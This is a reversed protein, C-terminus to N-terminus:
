NHYILHNEHRSLRSFHHFFFPHPKPISIKVQISEDQDNDVERNIEDSGESYGEAGM